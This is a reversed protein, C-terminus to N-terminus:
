DKYIFLSADSASPMFDLQGLYTAFWQHWAHPAQKLAYLSKQLLYVHNPASPDVFGPPLQCYVTEELSGHAMSFSM